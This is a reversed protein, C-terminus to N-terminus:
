RAPQRTAPQTMTAAHQHQCYQHLRLASWLVGLAYLVLLGVCAKHHWQHAKTATANIQCPLARTQHYPPMALFPITPPLTDPKM